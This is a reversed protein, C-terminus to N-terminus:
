GKWAIVFLRRFPFIVKGDVRPPYAGNISALYQALFAPQDEPKALADLYPRLGTGKYWEVIASPAPLIHQYETVWLDVRTAHSSLVDYYFPPEHVLWTQPERAFRGRWAASSAIDRMLRQAPCDLNAPMQAALAGGVAVQALLRPFQSAHDKVWHLAANAFVLDFPEAAGWNEIDGVKCQRRPYDRRAAEIMAPSSDMGTIEAAPWQRALVDTSNGPGCGLDIIRRPNLGRLRQALDICPQTREDGFKLYQEANWTPM